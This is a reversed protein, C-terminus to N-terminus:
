RGDFCKPDLELALRALKKAEKLRGAACAEHYRTLLMQLDRVPQPASYSAPCLTEPQPCATLNKAKASPCSRKATKTPEPVITATVMVLINETSRGYGVNKFLRNVYPIKSVVPPGYECRSEVIRKWGGVLATQGNPISLNLDLSHTQVRPPCPSALQSMSTKLDLAVFQKDASIKPRVSLEMGTSVSEKRQEQNTCPQDDLCRLVAKQGNAVMMRPAQMVNSRVDGQINEMFQRLQEENLFVPKQSGIQDPNSLKGVDEAKSDIKEMAGHSFDVGLREFCDEAISIFRVEIRVQGKAKHTTCVPAPEPKISSPEVAILSALLFHALM